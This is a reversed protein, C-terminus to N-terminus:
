GIGSVQCVKGGRIFFPVDKGIDAGLAELRTKSITGRFNRNLAVLVAAADSSGGGLGAAIPINKDIRIDVRATAGAASLFAAAARHCTNSENAPVDKSNTTITIGSRGKAIGLDITDALNDLRVFVSRIAHYGNALRGIVELTVNIKAPARLRISTTM